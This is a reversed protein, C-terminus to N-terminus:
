DGARRPKLLCYSRYVLERRNMAHYIRSGEIGSFLRALWRLGFPFCRKILRRYRRSNARMGQVVSDTIDQQRVIRFGTDTLTREWDPLEKEPRFDAYLFYGGPRLRQWVQKLFGRFDAYCHSAEVNIIRDFVAKPFPLAQANGVTFELGACDHRRACFAVGNRNLDVAVYLEPRWYRCLYSAGGGHGCSVELVTRGAISQGALVHHYLNICLRDDEDKEQLQLPQHPPAPQLAYNLFTIDADQTLRTLYPYWIRWVWTRYGKVRLLRDVLKDYLSLLM